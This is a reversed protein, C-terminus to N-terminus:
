ASEVSREASLRKQTDADIKEQMRKIGERQQALTETSLEISHVQFVEGADSVNGFFHYDKQLLPRMSEPFMSFPLYTRKQFGPAYCFAKNQTLRIIRFLTRWQKM